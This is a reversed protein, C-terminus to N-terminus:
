YLQYAGKGIKKVKKEKELTTLVRLLQRSSCRLLFAHKEMGILIGDECHYKLHNLVRHKLSVNDSVLRAISILKISLNRVLYNLFRTDNKLIERYKKLSIVLTMTDTLAEVFFLSPSPQYFEMDGLLFPGQGQALSYRTGDERIHYISITGSVVIQLYEAEECPQSLFEGKEYLCGFFDIATSSFVSQLDAKQGWDFLIDKDYIRKM